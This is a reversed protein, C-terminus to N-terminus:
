AVSGTPQAVHSPRIAPVGQCFSDRGEESLNVSQNGVSGYSGGNQRHTMRLLEKEQSSPTGVHSSVRPRPVSHDFWQRVDLALGRGELYNLISRRLGEGLWEPTKGRQDEHLLIM